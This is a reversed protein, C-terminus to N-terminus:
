LAFVNLGREDGGPYPDPGCFAEARARDNVIITRGRVHVGNDAVVQLMRSLTEATMGLRAALHRKAIPLIPAGCDPQLDVLRLLFAALRQAATRCNLDLVNRVTMRWHGSMAKLINNALVRSVEMAASVEAAGFVVVKTTTLARASVISPEGFLASAPLLLDKTSLLMVGCEHDGNVHALDVLGRHVVHLGDLRGGQHVIFSGARYQLATSASLLCDAINRNLGDFIPHARLEDLDPKISTPKAEAAPESEAQFRSAENM